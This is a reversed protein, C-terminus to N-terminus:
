KHVIAILKLVSLCILARVAHSHEGERPSLAENQSEVQTSEKEEEDNAGVAVLGPDANREASTRLFRFYSPNHSRHM